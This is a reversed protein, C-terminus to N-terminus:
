SHGEPAVDSVNDTSNRARPTRNKRQAKLLRRLERSRRHQYTIGHGDDASACEYREIIFPRCWCTRSLRHPSPDDGPYIHDTCM